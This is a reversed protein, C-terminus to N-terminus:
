GVKRMAAAIQVKAAQWAPLLGALLGVILSVALGLMATTRTVNLGPFYQTVEPPFLRVAPFSLALGLLGGVLSLILSEGLILGALHRPKFGMTKLAAYEGLRERANMAMTNALVGLIVGIVMWSVVQIAVLIASTMEVFGMQFAAETETLTEALSNKFAADIRASVPAALDPRAVQVLYWGVKDAQDPATKKLTENLYDWHFFLQTEDTNPYQGKYIARLVLRYEGQFYTGTLVIADGLRWGFRAALKRGALAGRRDAMLASKQDAPILFEPYADLYGPLSAAFQPFFNKKDIYIGEFWYAYAVRVVGPVAQIKALYSLPLPFMLSVANRTVLRVPSSLDVGAYWAAVVTRLLCFALVAVAMGLITLAARLPHRLTNRWTLKLM